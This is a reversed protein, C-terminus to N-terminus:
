GRESIDLRYGERQTYHETNNDGDTFRDSVNKGTHVTVNAIDTGTVGDEDDELQEKGTDDDDDKVFKQM